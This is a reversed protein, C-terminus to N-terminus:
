RSGELEKPDIRYSRFVKIASIYGQRWNESKQIDRIESQDDGSRQFLWVDYKMQGPVNVTYTIVYPGEEDYKHKSSEMSTIRWDSEGFRTAVFKEKGPVFSVMIQRKEAEDNKKCTFCRKPDHYKPANETDYTAKFIYPLSAGEARPYGWIPFVHGKPIWSNLQWLEREVRKQEKKVVAGFIGLSLLMLGILFLGVVGIAVARRDTNVPTM